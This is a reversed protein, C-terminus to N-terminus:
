QQPNSLDGLTVPKIVFADVALTFPWQRTYGPLIEISKEFSGTVFVHNDERRVSVAEAGLPVDHADALELVRGKLEEDSLKRESTAMEKVADTFRYFSTYSSGLRWAANCVLVAVAVKLVLKVTM